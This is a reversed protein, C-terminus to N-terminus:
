AAFMSEEEQANEKIGEYVSCCFEQKQLYFIPQLLFKPSEKEREVGGLVTATEGVKEGEKDISSIVRAEVPVVLGRFFKEHRLVQGWGGKNRALIFRFSRRLIGFKKEIRRTFKRKGSQGEPIHNVSRGEGKDCDLGRHVNV